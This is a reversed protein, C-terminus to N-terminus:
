SPSGRERPREHRMKQVANLFLLAGGLLFLWRLAALSDVARDRLDPIREATHELNGRLQELNDADTRPSDGVVDTLLPLLDTLTTVLDAIQRRVSDFEDPQDTIRRLQEARIELGRAIQQINQRTQSWHDAQKQLVAAAQQLGKTMERLRSTQRLSDALTEALKPLTTALTAARQPTERLLPELKDRHSLALRVASRTQSLTKRSQELSDKIVPLDRSLTELETQAARVGETAQRLGTAIREGNPWFPKEDIEPRWGVFRVVPYKYGALKEVQGATADLSTELGALGTRMARVRKEEFMSGMRSLGEDLRGLAKEVEEATGWDNSLDRTLTSLSEADKSLMKALSQIHEASQEASGIVNEDLFQAGERLGSAFTRIQEADFTENWRSLGRSIQSLTDRMQSLSQHDWSHERLWPEWALSRERVQRVRTAVDARGVAALRQEFLAVQHATREITQQLHDFTQRAPEPRPLRFAVAVCSIGVSMQLLATLLALGQRM